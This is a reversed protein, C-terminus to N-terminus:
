KFEKWNMSSESLLEEFSKNKERRKQEEIRRKEEAELRKQEDVKLQQKTNSLKDKLEKGLLDGLTLTEKEQKKPVPNTGKKKAM